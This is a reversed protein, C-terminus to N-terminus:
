AVVDARTAAQTHEEVEREKDILWSAISATVIAWSPLGPARSGERLSGAKRRSPTVTATATVTTMAWWGANGLTTITAGKTGREADLVALSAVFRVLSTAGGVYV